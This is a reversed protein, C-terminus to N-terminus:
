WLSGWKSEEEPVPIDDDEMRSKAGIPGDVTGSMSQMYSELEIPEISIEPKVYKKM